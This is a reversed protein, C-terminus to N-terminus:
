GKKHIYVKKQHWLSATVM